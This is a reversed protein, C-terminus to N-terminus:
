LAKDMVHDPISVRKIRAGLASLKEVVDEYGREIHRIEEIETVGAAVLGAILMAAGARLDTAKIPAGNLHDVGEIVATTGDVQIKAGM